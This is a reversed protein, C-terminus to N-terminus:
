AKKREELQAKMTKKDFWGEYLILDPHEDFTTWDKVRVGKQAAQGEDFVRVYWSDVDKGKEKLRVVGKLKWIWDPDKKEEVILFRGALEPIDGPGRLKEAGKQEEAAPQKKWFM